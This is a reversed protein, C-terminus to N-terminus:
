YREYTITISQVQLTAVEILSQFHGGLGHLLSFSAIVRSLFSKAFDALQFGQSNLSSQAPLNLKDCARLVSASSQYCVSLCVLLSVVTVRKCM